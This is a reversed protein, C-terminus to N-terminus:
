FVFFQQQFTFERPAGRLDEPLVSVRFTAREENHIRFSALYYVADQEVVERLELERRQGALNVMHVRIQARVAQDLGDEGKRLVALNLLARSASRQVGIANAVEPALQSTNIISYHVWHTGLDEAQQAWGPAPGILCALLLVAPRLFMQLHARMRTM